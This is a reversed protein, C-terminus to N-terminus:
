FTTLLRMNNRFNIKSYYKTNNLFIFQKDNRNHKRSNKDNRNHKREYFNNIIANIIM